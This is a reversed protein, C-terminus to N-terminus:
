VRPTNREREHCCNGVHDMGGGGENEEFDQTLWREVRQHAATGKILVFNFLIGRGVKSINTRYNREM